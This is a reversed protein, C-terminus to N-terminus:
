HAHMVKFFNAKYCKLFNCTATFNVLKNDSIFHFHLCGCHNDKVRRKKVSRRASEVAGIYLQKDESLLPESTSAVSDGSRDSLFQFAPYRHLRQRRPGREASYCRNFQGSLKSMMIACPSPLRLIRSPARRGRSRRTERGSILKRLLLACTIIIGSFPRAHHQM